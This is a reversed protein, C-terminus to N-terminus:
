VSGNLRDKIYKVITERAKELPLEVVCGSANIHGGGGFHAAIDAVDVDKQSRFSVKTQHNDVETFLVGLEVGNPYMSYNVLGETDGQGAEAAQMMKRDVTLLCLRGNMQYQMESIALGTLRVVQPRLNYYVNDTIEAANAGLEMLHAAAMLCAPTTSSYHFRGTDTLIATYLNTAMDRSIPYSGQQLIDYIMEGAAAAEIIKLNVAGFEVNDQHHDINIVVTEPGILRQVRGIRELNSCEIVVATDFPGVEGSLKEIDLVAEIGPMFRYKDPIVGENVLTHEINNDELFGALGLQSGLSDGDPSKHATVLVKKSKLLTDIIKQRILTDKKEETESMVEEILNVMRMGEVLSTDYHLSVEPMRRLRMRHALEAQIYGAAHDFIEQVRERKDEDGLVTYFIRAYRLDDSVKVGSVTVLLESRDQMMASIVESADRRMQDAVRQSRKFSKM